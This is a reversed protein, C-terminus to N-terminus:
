ADDKHLGVVARPRKVHSQAVPVLFNLRRRSTGLWSQEKPTLNFSEAGLWDADAPMGSMGPRKISALSSHSANIFTMGHEVHTLM